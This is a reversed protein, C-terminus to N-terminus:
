QQQSITVTQGAVSVQGQRPSGTTNAAIAFNARGSGTGSAPATLTIWADTTSAVWACGAATTVDVFQTSQTAPATITTPAVAYVCAAGAQTVTVTQGVITFTGIRAQTDTNAALSVTVTASGSGSSAGGFTIWATTSSATWVCGATTTLNVSVTGATSPASVSTPAITYTCASGAQTVTFTQGAITATGTRGSTSTNAEAALVLNAAGSGAASGVFSLWPVNSTASWACGTQTTLAVPISSAAGAGISASTPQLTYSCTPTAAAQSVTFTQGAITLTGNRAAGTNAAVSFQVTGDGIGSGASTVSLWADNSSVTWRCAAPTTVNVSSSGGLAGASFSAPALSYTCTTGSQTITVPQGAITLTSTRAGGSTAAVAVSVIGSGTGSAGGTITVWADPSSATWACGSTGTVTFSATGGASGFSASGPAVGFACATAPQNVSVLTGAIALTGTRADGQNAAASFTVRGNGSGSAGGTVSLWPANSVATWGCGAATEVDFAEGGGTAAVTRSSPTVAFTCASTGTQTVSASENAVAIAGARTGGGNAQVTFPITANGTGTSPGALALWPVNPTATWSCSAQSTVISLTGSGGAPSFSSPTTTVSYLCSAAGAAQAIAVSTDGVSISGSRAAGTNSAVAITLPGGGTRSPAGQVSLWPASATPTWACTAFTTVEFSLTTGGAGVPPVSTPAITFQCAAAAQQLDIRAENVTVSGSRAAPTPNAQTTVTLTATGQGSTPSVAIWASQSAVTWTCERNTSVGITGTGGAAGVQTSGSLTIACKSSSPGTVNTSSSRCGGLVSVVALLAGLAPLRLSFPM